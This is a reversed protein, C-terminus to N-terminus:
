ALNAAVQILFPQLFLDGFVSFASWVSIQQETTKTAEQEEAPPFVSCQSPIQHRFRV